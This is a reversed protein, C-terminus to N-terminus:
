FRHMKELKKICFLMAETLDQQKFRIDSLKLVMTAGSTCSFFEFIQVLQPGLCTYKVSYICCILNCLLYYCFPCPPSPPPLVSFMIQYKHGFMSSHAEGALTESHGTHVARHLLCQLLKALSQLIFLQGSMKM